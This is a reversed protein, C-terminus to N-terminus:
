IDDVRLPFYRNGRLEKKDYNAHNEKVVTRWVSLRKSNDRDFFTIAERFKFPLDFRAKGTDIFEKQKHIPVGKAKVQRDVRYMKPAYVIAKEWNELPRAGPCKRAVTDPHWNERCVSCKTELKMEGLEGGVGFPLRKAIPGTCNFGAPFKEADFIVSDTDCYIMREAGILELYKLLELRGYGTIYAAHSWNVEEGLPMAYNVLVRSGFCTGKQHRHGCRKCIDFHERDKILVTRGIIGSTGLRGYLTNMLLKYFNKEVKSVSAKRLAYIKQIYDRYPYIAEDTTLADHVKLIKAGRQEAARIEAVTWVGTITGFPFFIKGEPSRWPLVPIEMEPLDITVQAVGYEKLEARTDELEAPFAKTMMTPYLSNIDAYLVTDSQSERKFLEVRGGYIADRCIEHSNHVNEGGWAKWLNVGFTGITAPVTGIGVQEAFQWVYLMAERIIDVDRMCYDKDTSMSSTELKELGFVDGLKKVSMQWYNWVDVYTKQLETVSKIIRGGVLTTDLQDLFDGHCNGVDYQINNAYIFSEQQQKCWRLFKEVSESGKVFFGKGEATKAAIMTVKKDFLSVGKVGRRIKASLDLTNDETDFCLFPFTM